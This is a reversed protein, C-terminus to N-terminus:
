YARFIRKMDGLAELQSESLPSDKSDAIHQILPMASTLATAGSLENLRKSLRTIAPQPGQCEQVYWHGLVVMEEADKLSLGLAQQLGLWLANKQRDSPMADLELFAVALAATALDAEEICDVPHQNAQRRFGFRRAAGMATQAADALEDIMNAADRARSMWFYGGALIGLLALLVPM